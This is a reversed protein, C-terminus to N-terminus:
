PLLFQGVQEMLLLIKLGQTEGDRQVLRVGHESHDFTDRKLVKSGGAHLGNGDKMKEGINMKVFHQGTLRDDKM